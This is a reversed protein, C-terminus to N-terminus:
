AREDGGASGSGSASEADADADANAVWREVLGDFDVAFAELAAWDTDEDDRSTDPRRDHGRRVAPLV